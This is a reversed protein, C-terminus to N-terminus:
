SIKIATNNSDITLKEALLNDPARHPASLRVLAWVPYERYRELRFMM